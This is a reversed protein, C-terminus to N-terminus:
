SGYVFQGKWGNEPEGKNKTIPCYYIASKTSRSREAKEAQQGKKLEGSLRM